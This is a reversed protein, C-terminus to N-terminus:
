AWGASSAGRRRYLVVMTTTPSGARAPSTTTTHHPHGPLPLFNSIAVFSFCWQHRNYDYHYRCGVVCATKTMGPGALQAPSVGYLAPLREANDPPSCPPCFHISPRNSSSQFISSWPILPLRIYVTCQVGMCLLSGHAISGM